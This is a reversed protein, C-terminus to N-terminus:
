KSIQDRISNNTKIIILVMNFIAASETKGELIGIEM